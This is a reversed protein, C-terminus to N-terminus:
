LPGQENLGRKTDLPQFTAGSRRGRAGFAAVCRVTRSVRGGAVARWCRVAHGNYVRTLRLALSTKWSRNPSQSPRVINGGSWRRQSRGGPPTYSRRTERKPPPVMAPLTESSGQARATRCVPPHLHSGNSCDQARPETVTHRWAAPSPLRRCPEFSSHAPCCAPEGRVGKVPSVCRHPVSAPAKRGRSSVRCGM